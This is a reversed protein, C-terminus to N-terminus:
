EVDYDTKGQRMTAVYRKITDQPLKVKQVVADAEMAKVWAELKPLKGDANLVYGSDKLAPLLEFWPWLMYDIMAPKSGGFFTEQLADEYSKLQANLEDIPNGETQRFVQYFPSLM